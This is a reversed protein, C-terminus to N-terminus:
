DGAVEGDDIAEADGAVKKRGRKKPAADGEPAWGHECWAPADDANVIAENGDKYLKVTEVQDM